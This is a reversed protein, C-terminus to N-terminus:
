RSRGTRRSRRVRSSVAAIFTVAEGVALLGSLGHMAAVARAARWEFESWNPAAAQLDALEDALHETTARLVAAVTALPPLQRPGQAVHALNTDSPMEIM